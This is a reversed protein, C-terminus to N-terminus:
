QLRILQYTFYFLALADDHDFRETLPGIGLIAERTAEKHGSFSQGELVSTCWHVIKQYEGTDFADILLEYSELVLQTDRAEAIFEQLGEGQRLNRMQYIESLDPEYQMIAALLSYITQRYVRGKRKGPGDFLLQSFLWQSDLNKLAIIYNMQIWVPNDQLALRKLEDLIAAVGLRGLSKAATSRITQDETTQFVELLVSKARESRYAGLAFLAETQHYSEPDSAIRLLDDLLGSRRHDFLSQIMPGKKSSLPSALLKHIEDTAVENANDSIQFLLTKQKLPNKVRQLRGIDVYAKLGEFSLLMAAAKKSSLGHEDDILLSLVLEILAIVSALAFLLWYGNVSEFEFLQSAPISLDIAVGGLLGFLLSCIAIVFNNMSNYVVGDDEPIQDLLLRNIFMNNSWLFFNTVFGLLLLVLFPISESLFMWIVLLLVLLMNGIILFPRSGIRDGFAKTYIGALVVASGASASYLIVLNNGLGLSSRLFPITLGVLVALSINTWGIVLVAREKPIRLSSRLVTFLGRGPKYDIVARCPVKRLEAVSWSNFIFGLFQLVILGLLGSLQQLSLVLTSFLKAAISVSQFSINVQSIVQSRNRSSSIQRLLPNIVVVGALRFLCFLSYLLLILFVAQQGSLFFLAGYGLGVSGRLFWSVRQVQLLNKGRLLRPVIPLLVGTLFVASSIYGLQLPGAGFYIALLYVITDGLFNYGAGNLMQFRYYHKRARRKEDQTLYRTKM